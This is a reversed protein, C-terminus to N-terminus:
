DVFLGYVVGGIGLIVAYFAIGAFAVPMASWAFAGGMIYIAGIILVSGQRNYMAFYPLLLLIAYFLDGTFFKYFDGTNQIFDFSTMNALFIKHIWQGYNEPAAGIYITYANSGYSNTVTLTVAYSGIKAYTHVPNQETSNTGDGFSWVWSAPDSKSTDNFQCIFGDGNLTPTYTFSPVPSHPIYAINIMEAVASTNSGASNTTTLSVTYLGSRMYTHTPADSVSTSGDGFQWLYSTPNNTSTDQFTVTTSINGSTPNAIFDSVPAVSDTWDLPLPFQGGDYCANLIYKTTPAASLVQGSSATRPVNNYYGTYLGVNSYNAMIHQYESLINTQTDGLGDFLIITEGDDSPLYDWANFRYTILFLKGSPKYSKVTAKWQNRQAASCHEFLEPHGNPQVWELDVVVGIVNPYDAYQTLVENILDNPDAEEPQVDLMVQRGDVLAQDLLPKIKDTSEHSTYATDTGPFLLHCNKVLQGNEEWAWAATVVLDEIGHTGGMVYAARSWYTANHQDDGNRWVGRQLGTQTPIPTYIVIYGTKTSTNTGHANECTLTVTYLGPTTYRHTPNITTSTGGDGFDWAWSTPSSSSMDYFQILSNATSKTTTAIFDTRPANNFTAYIIYKTNPGAAIIESQGATNPNCDTFGTVIGPNTYNSAIKSYMYMILSQNAAQGAYLVVLNENDTPLYASESTTTLFLKYTSNYGRIRSIWENATSTSVTVGPVWNTDISVGIICPHSHYKTLIIDILSDVNASQPEIELIVKRGDTDFKTLRSDLLETSAYHIYTSDTGTTPLYCINGTQAVGVVYDIVANTGGQSFASTSMAAPSSAFDNYYRVGKQIGTTSPLTIVANHTITTTGYSNSVTLTVEYIGSATFVHSPNQSSSSGGDGFDWTWASVGGVSVDSFQITAPASGMTPNMTFEPLPAHSTTATISINHAELTLASTDIFVRSGYRYSSVPNGDIKTLVSAVGLTSLNVGSYQTILQDNVYTQIPTYSFTQYYNNGETTETATVSNASGFEINDIEWVGNANNQTYLSLAYYWSNGNSTTFDYHKWVGSTLDSYSVTEYTQGGVSDECIFQIDGQTAGTQKVDFSFHTFHVQANQPYFEQYIHGCYENASNATIKLCYSGSAADTGLSLGSDGSGSKTWGTPANGATYGTASEFGFNVWGSSVIPNITVASAIPICLFIIAILIAIYKM